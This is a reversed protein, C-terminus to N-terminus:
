TSATAPPANRHAQGPTARDRTWRRRNRYQAARPVINAHHPIRGTMEDPVRAHFELSERFCRGLADMPRAQNRSEAQPLPRGAYNRGTEPMRQTPGEKDVPFRAQVVSRTGEGTPAPAAHPTHPMPSLHDTSTAPTRQRAWAEVMRRSGERPTSSLVRSTPSAYEQRVRAGARSSGDASSSSLQTPAEHSNFRPPWATRESPLRRQRPYITVSSLTM